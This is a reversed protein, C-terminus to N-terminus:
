AIDIHMILNSSHIVGHYYSPPFELASLYKPLHICTILIERLSLEWGLGVSRHKEEDGVAIGRVVDGVPMLQLVGARKCDEEGEQISNDSLYDGKISSCVGAIPSRSSPPAASLLLPSQDRSSCSTSIHTIRTYGRILYSARSPMM